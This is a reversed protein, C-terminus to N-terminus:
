RLCSYFSNRDHIEELINCIDETIRTNSIGKQLPIDFLKSIGDSNIWGFINRNAEILVTINDIETNIYKIKCENRLKRSIITRASSYKSM